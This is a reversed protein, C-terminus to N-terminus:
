RGGGDSQLDKNRTWNQEIYNGYSGHDEPDYSFISYEADTVTIWARMWGQIEPHNILCDSRDIAPDEGMTAEERLFAIQTENLGFDELAERDDTSFIETIQAQDRIVSKDQAQDDDEALVFDNPHQSIFWLGAENHRWHRTQAGLWSLIRPSKLLHHAEDIVFMTKGPTNKVAEYVEGLAVSLMTTRHDSEGVSDIQQLDLYTVGGPEVSADSEGTLFGFEGDKEFGGLKRLLAGVNSEIEKEEFGYKVHEGPQNGIAAVADRVDAMTPSNEKTHTTPEDPDLGAELMATQVADRILPRYQDRADDTECVLDLILGVVFRHKARFPDVGATEVSDQDTPTMQLPNLTSNGGITIRNGNLLGTVGAFDGESDVFVLTRDDPDSLYWRIIQKLTSWTKGSGSSGLTLRMAPPYEFPDISILRGNTPNRGIEAGMEHQITTSCPPPFTAAIAGTGCLRKRARTSTEAYANTGTPAAARFLEAQRNADTVPTVNAGSLVEEVDDCADELAKRKALEVSLKEDDYGREALEEVKQIARRKGARVTVYTSCHWAQIDTHHLLLFLQVYADMEDELVRADLPNADEKRETVASDITGAMHQIEEKATDTDRSEFRHHVSMDIGRMTHLAKLFKVTPRVPWDAIWFTRCFQDGAVVMDDNPREDWRSAALLEQIKENYRQSRSSDAMGDQRFRALVAGFGAMVRRSDSANLSSIDDTTQSRDVGSGEAVSIPEDTIGDYDFPHRTGAWHRAVVRAHAASDVPRTTVGSVSGFAERLSTLRREAEVQQQQRISTASVSNTEPTDLDGPAVAAVLYNEWETAKSIEGRKPEFDLISKLYGIVDRFRERDYRESLWVRKYKETHDAADPCTSMSYISFDIDALKKSGDIGRRLTNIMTQAEGDTQYDTNRGYVRAFRVIRGDTMEISGDDLIREVNHVGAAGARDLPFSRARLAMSLRGRMRDIGSTYAPMTKILYVGIAFLLVGVGVFIAGFTTLGYASSFAGILVVMGGPLLYALRDARMGRIRMGSDTEPLILQSPPVDDNLQAETETNSTKMM